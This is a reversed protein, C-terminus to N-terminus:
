REGAVPILTQQLYINLMIERNKNHQTLERSFWELIRKQMDVRGNCWEITMDYRESLTNLIKLLTEGPTKLKGAQESWAKNAFGQKSCEVFIKIKINLDKARILMRVFRQHDQIISQYLDQPSKREAHAINELEKITYDGVELKKSQFYKPNFIPRQERTDIILKSAFRKYKSPLIDKGTLKSGTMIDKINLLM